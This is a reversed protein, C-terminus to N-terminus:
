QLNRITESLEAIATEAANKVAAYDSVFNLKNGLVNDRLINASGGWNFIVNLDFRAGNSIIDLIEGAREDRALKTKLTTEYVSERVDTNSIYAMVEVIYGINELRSVTIPILVGTGSWPQAYSYYTEQEENLKPMPLMGYDNEMDRYVIRVNNMTTAAFLARGEQFVPWEANKNYDEGRLCTDKNGVIARLTDALNVTEETHLTLYPMKTEDFVTMQGGAGFFFGFGAVEDYAIAWQDDLNMVGDGNLDVVAREMCVNLTDLTWKGELTTDYLDELQLDSALSQNFLMLYIANFYMPTIPGTPFYIRGGFSLDTNYASWWPRSLDVYPVNDFSHLYSSLVLTRATDAMDGLVVDYADEGAMVANSVNTSLTAPSDVSINDIVVNYEDQIRSNRQYLADNVVEGTMSEGPFNVRNFGDHCAIFHYVEGDLNKGPLTELYDTEATTEAINETDPINEPNETQESSCGTVASVSLLACLFLVFSKRIHYM